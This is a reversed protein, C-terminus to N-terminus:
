GGIIWSYVAAIFLMVVGIWLLLDAKKQNMYDLEPTMRDIDNLNVHEPKVTKEVKVLQVTITQTKM